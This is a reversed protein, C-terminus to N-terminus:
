CREKSVTEEVSRTVENTGKQREEKMRGKEKGNASLYAKWECSEM